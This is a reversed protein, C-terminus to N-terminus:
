SSWLMEDIEAELDVFESEQGAPCIDYTRHLFDAVPTLPLEFTAKGFPSSLTLGLMRDGSTRDPWVTVDGEGVRRVIGVTFLERAFIWEVPEDDAVHFSIRIAYPDEAAYALDAILPVAAREPVVLRLDVETSITISSNM